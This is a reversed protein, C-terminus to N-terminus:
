KVIDFKSVLLRGDETLVRVVYVGSQLEIGFSLQFTNENLGTQEFVKRGDFAFISVGEIVAGPASIVINDRCPNPFVLIKNAIEEEVSAIVSFNECFESTSGSVSTATATMLMGDTIGPGYFMWNGTADCWTRGLFTQGEGHNITSDPLAIFLEIIANEPSGTDLTGYVWVMGNSANYAAHSIVPFNMLENPGADVDGADNANPGEPFVDIGMLSNEYISNESLTNYLTTNDKIAFGCSDHYAIVNGLGEGGIQNYSSGNWLVVGVTGNGIATTSDAGPGIYNRTVINSDANEFLLIGYHANGSIVNADITNQSCESIVSIGYLNPRAQMGTIDTGIYNGIITNFSTGQDAIEIGGFRNGSFINREAPTTGGIINYKTGGGILLGADNPVTDTGAANLGLINGTMTNYYTGTTVIFIGYSYNGSLVNNEIPNHNSGGDVCIGTANPLANNGTADVGIYNGVVPNYSCNGYYVMGYVRNGSVVNREASTYGGLRNHKAVTNFEVGNSQLLTDGGIKFADLGTSDPGFYNNILVNSDAAEIYVGMELNGSIINRETALTGGITNRNANSLINIGSYNHLATMGTIDPGIFNGKVVNNRTGTGNMVIAAGRNGSIINRHKYTSGGITTNSAYSLIIGNENPISDTGHVDTGIRNGFIQNGTSPLGDIVIGATSNGSILNFEGSILSGITNSFANQLGIGYSNPIATIGSSDTGIRNNKIINNSSETIAIGAMTNGSIVNNSITNGSAGNAIAVGYMNTLAAPATASHNTGLYNQTVINGTATSNYIMIGYSFGQIVFGKVANGPSVLLIPYDFTGSGKRLVIEYGYINTNGQNTQQSTADINIYGTSIMPLTSILTITFTGSGADYGPDTNPIDFYINDAGVAANASTIAERLSGVGSDNTNIVTYNATLARFSLAIFFSVLLMRPM